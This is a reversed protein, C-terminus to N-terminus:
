TGAAQLLSDAAARAEDTIKAGALMRAIEERRHEADLAQVSTRSTGGKARKLILWHHGARAAVQPSHTVVIVQTNHALRALREGVKD